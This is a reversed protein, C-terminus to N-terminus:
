AAIKKEVLGKQYSLKLTNGLEISSSDKVSHNWSIGKIWNPVFDTELGFRYFAVEDARVMFQVLPRMRSSLFAISHYALRYGLTDTSVPVYEGTYNLGDLQMTFVPVSVSKSGGVALRFRSESELNSPCEVGSYELRKLERKFFCIEDEIRQWLLKLMLYPAGLVSQRRNRHVYDEYDVNGDVLLNRRELYSKEEPSMDWAFGHWGQNWSGEYDALMYTRSAGMSPGVGSSNLVSEDNVQVSFSLLERHSILGTIQGFRKTGGVHQQDAYAQWPLKNNYSAIEVRASRKYLDALLSLLDLDTKQVQGESNRSPKPKRGHYSLQTQAMVLKAFNLNLSIDRNLIQSVLPNTCDAVARVTKAIHM